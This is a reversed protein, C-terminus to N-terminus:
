VIAVLLHCEFCASMDPSVLPCCESAAPTWLPRTTFSTVGLLTSKALKLGEQPVNEQAFCPVSFDGLTHIHLDVRTSSPLTYISFGDRSLVESAHIRYLCCKKAFVYRIRPAGSNVLVVWFQQLLVMQTTFHCEKTTDYVTGQLAASSNM